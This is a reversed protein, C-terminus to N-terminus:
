KIFKKYHGEKALADHLADLVYPNNLNKAARVAVVVGKDKAVQLLKKVKADDELYKIDNAHNTAQLKLSDDLDMNEIEQRMKQTAASDLSSEETELVAEPTALTEPKQEVLAETEKSINESNKKPLPMISQIKFKTDPLKFPIASNLIKDVNM